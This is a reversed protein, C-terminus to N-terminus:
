ECSSWYPFYTYPIVVVRGYRRRMICIEGDLGHATICISLFFITCHIHVGGMLGAQKKKALFARARSRMERM